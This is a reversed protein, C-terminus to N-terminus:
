ENNGGDDDKCYEKYKRFFTPQSVGLLEAAKYTTKARKMARSVLISEVERVAENMPMIGEVVVKKKQPAPQGFRGSLEMSQFSDLINGDNMVFQREVFNSMERVNGPWSMETLQDIFNSTIMKQEKYKENLKRIFLEALGPIDEPRERLPPVTISIVNLRYYLDSRFNGSAIMDELNRNTAAVIRVNVKRSKCDGVRTVEGDQLVRLLSSQLDLPLEGIEDLFLTGEDALEFMGVKGKPSAGTFAGPVYGFLESELLNPPISGCNIKIYNNDKRKSNTHIYRALVEKGAGTEGLILVSSDKGAVRQALEVASKLAPSDCVLSDTAVDRFLEDRYLSSAIKSLELQKELSVLETIDRVNTIVREVEGNEDFIPSGTIILNRKNKAKQKLTVPQKQRVVEDTIYISLVGDNVLDKMYKGVITERPIGTIREYSKNVQLTLGNSDTIYIGDYSNEIISELEGEKKKTAALEHSARERETVDEFVSIAGVTEGRINLSTRNAIIDLGNIEMKYNIQPDESFLFDNLSSQPLAEVLPRDIVDAACVNHVKCASENVAIIRADGDIAVIGNYCSDLMADVVELVDRIGDEAGSSVINLRNYFFSTSIM